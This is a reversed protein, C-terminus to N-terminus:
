VSAVGRGRGIRDVGRCSLGAVRALGGARLDSIEARELRTSQRWEEYAMPLAMRPSIRWFPSGTERQSSDSAEALRWPHYRFKTARRRAPEVLTRLNAPRRFRRHKSAPVSRLIQQHPYSHSAVLTQIRTPNRKPKPCAHTAHSRGPLSSQRVRVDSVSLGNARSGVGVARGARRIVGSETFSHGVLM